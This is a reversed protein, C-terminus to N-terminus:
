ELTSPGAFSHIQSVATMYTNWLVALGTCQSSYLTPPPWLTLLFLPLLHIWSINLLNFILLVQHCLTPHSIFPSIINVGLDRTWAFYPGGNAWFNDINELHMLFVHMKKRAFIIVRYCPFHRIHLAWPPNWSGNIQGKAQHEETTWLIFQLPFIHTFSHGITDNTM